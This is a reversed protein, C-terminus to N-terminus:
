RLRENKATADFILDFEPAPILRMGALSTCHKLEASNYLQQDFVECYRRHNANFKAALAPIEKRWESDRGAFPKRFFM